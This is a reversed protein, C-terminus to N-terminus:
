NSYRLFVKKGKSDIIYAPEYGPFDFARIIRSAEDSNLKSIQIEKYTSISNKKFYRFMYGNKIMEKIPLRPATGNIVEPLIDILGQFLALQTKQFVSFGTDDPEINFECRKIIDGTDIGEDIWHLTGGGKPAGYLVSFNASYLGSFEPLLGGHMNIIGISFCDIIDAKIIKGFRCSLGLDLHGLGCLDKMEYTPISNKICFDNLTPIDQWPDNNHPNTNGIVTGVLEYDQNKLIEIAIKTAIPLDGFIIIRTRM